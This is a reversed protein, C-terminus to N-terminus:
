WARNLYRWSRTEPERSHRPRHPKSASADVISQSLMPATGTGNCTSTPDKCFSDTSVVLCGSCSLSGTTGQYALMSRWSIASRVRLVRVRDGLPLKSPLEISGKRERSRIERGEGPNSWGKVLGCTGPAWRAQWWGTVVRRSLHLRSVIASPDARRGRLSCAGGARCIGPRPPMGLFYFNRGVPRPPAATKRDAYLRAETEM